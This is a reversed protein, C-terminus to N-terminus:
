EGLKRERRHATWLACPEDQGTSGQEGIEHEKTRFYKRAKVRKGARAKIRSIHLEDRWCFTWRKACNV